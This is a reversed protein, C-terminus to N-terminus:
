PNSPVSWEVASVDSMATGRKIDGTDSQYKRRRGELNNNGAETKEKKRESSCNRVFGLASM